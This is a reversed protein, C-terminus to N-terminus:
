MLPKWTENMRNLFERYKIRSPWTSASLAVPKLDIKLVAKFSVYDLVTVNKNKPVLKVVNNCCSLPVNLSRSILVSVDNETASNDINSLYLSFTECEPMLTHLSCQSPEPEPQLRGDAVSDNTKDLPKPSSVPTSHRIPAAVDPKPMIQPMVNALMNSIEKVTCKLDNIQDEVSQSSETNTSADACMRDRIRCFRVMCADCIWIINSSLACLDDKTLGVCTAHFYKACHGECVTYLESDVKISLSCKECKRDM